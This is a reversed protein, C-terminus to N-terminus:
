RGPSDVPSVATLKARVILRNDATGPPDCTTLTLAPYPTPGIVTLDYPDTVFVREVAFLLTRDPYTIRIPDGPKLRHLNFFFAPRGRFTRHGAMAANGMEGPLPTDPYHGPGRALPENEIGEVVMQRIGVAPIEIQYTSSGAGREVQIAPAWGEAVPQSPGSAAAIRDSVGQWYRRELERVLRLGVVLLLGAVVLWSGARRM